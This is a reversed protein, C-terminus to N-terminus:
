QPSAPRNTTTGKSTTTGGKKQLIIASDSGKTQTGATPKRQLIISSNSGPTQRSRTTTTTRPYRRTTTMRRSTTGHSGHYDGHHPHANAMQTSHCGQKKALGPPLDCDGWGTKKGKDWGAPRNSPGTTGSTHHDNSKSKNKGHGHGHDDNDDADHDHGHGQDASMTNGHGFNGHSKNGHDGKALATGSLALCVAVALLMSYCKRM